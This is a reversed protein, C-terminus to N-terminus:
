VMAAGLGPRAQEAAIRGCSCEPRRDLLVTSSSDRYNLGSPCTEWVRMSNRRCRADPLSRHGFLADLPTKRLDQYGIHDTVTPHHVLILGSRQRLELREAFLHEVGAGTLVM